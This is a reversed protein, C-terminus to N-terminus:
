RAARLCSALDSPDDGVAVPFGEARWGALGGPMEKVPRGLGALRVAGRTSANCHPGACYTVVLDHAAVGLAALSAESIRRHPLSVAGPVHGARYHEASRTDVVTLGEIGNLLDAYLDACDAEFALRQRFHALATAADAAPHDLVNSRTRM